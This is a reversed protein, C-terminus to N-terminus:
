AAAWSAQLPEGDVGMVIKELRAQAGGVRRLERLTFDSGTTAFAARTLKEALNRPTSFIDYGHATVSYPIGLLRSLRLASLAAGAAFHAHLHDDGRRACRRAVAALERLPPVPEERRWRRRARVDAVCARPHRSVLWAFDSPRRTSGVVYDVDDQVDAPVEAPAGAEIRVDFGLRRLAAVENVVFTQSLEPYTDVLMCVRGRTM